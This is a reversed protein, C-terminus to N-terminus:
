ELMKKSRLFFHYKRSFRHAEDRLRQLLHLAPSDEPLNIERDDDTYITELRKALGIIRPRKISKVTNSIKNLQGKGGDVVMLDPLPIESNFRRRVMEALMAYDDPGVKKIKYRRYLSKEPRGRIFVVQGGTGQKGSTNAIDYGELKQISEMRLIRALDQSEEEWRDEALNPNVEYEYGQTRRSTVYNLRVLQTKVEAAKEFDEKKAAVIMEKELRTVLNARKGRLLDMIDRVTKRYELRAKEEKFVEPCPCLGLHSRLCVKGGQHSESVYPFIKRLFRLWKSLDSGTPYPGFYKAKPNTEQRAMRVMPVPERVTIEILPYAKGDKWDVNYKPRFRRILNAELLFADIESETVVHSMEATDAMLKATKPLLTASDQFYSSVRDRLSKAKGM